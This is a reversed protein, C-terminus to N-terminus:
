RSGGNLRLAIIIQNVSVPLAIWGLRLQSFVRPAPCLTAGFRKIVHNSRSTASRPHDFRESREEPLTVHHGVDDHHRYTEVLEMPNQPISSREIQM